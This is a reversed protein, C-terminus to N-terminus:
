VRFGDDCLGRVDFITDVVNMPLLWPYLMTQKRKNVASRAGMNLVYPPKLKESSWTCWFCPLLVIFYAYFFSPDCEWGDHLSSFFLSGDHILLFIHVAGMSRDRSRSAVYESVFLGYNDWWSALFFLWQEILLFIHAAGMSRDRRRHALWKNLSSSLIIEDDHFLLFSLWQTIYLFVHSAGISRNRWRVISLLLHTIGMMYLRCNAKRVICHTCGGHYFARYLKM